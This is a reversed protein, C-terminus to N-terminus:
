NIIGLNRLLEIIMKIIQIVVLFDLAEEPVAAGAEGTAAQHIGEISAASVGWVIALGAKLKEPDVTIAVASKVWAKIRGGAQLSTDAIPAAMELAQKLNDGSLGMKALSNVMASLATAENKDKLLPAKSIEAVRIVLPDAPNPSPGPPTPTPDGPTFGQVIVDLDRPVWPGPIGNVVEAQFVGQPTVLLIPRNGALVPSCIMSFLLVSVFFKNRM